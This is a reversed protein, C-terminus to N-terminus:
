AVYLLEAIRLITWFGACGGIAYAAGTGLRHPPLWARVIAFAVMSASMCVLQGAEIGVNFGLLAVTRHDAPLGVETLAGALGLGHLLGFGFALVITRRRDSQLDADPRLVERAAFMISLAILAETPAPALVLWGLASLSLTLSHALTFLSLLGILGAVSRVMFSLLVIFAIHDYGVLIHQIGLGFYTRLASWPDSPQRLQDAHEAGNAGPPREVIPKSETLRYVEDDHPVGNVAQPRVRVLVEEIRAAFGLIGITPLRGRCTLTWQSEDARAPKPSAVCGEPWVPHLRSPRGVKPQRLTVHWRGPAAEILEFYGPAFRHGEARPAIASVAVVVAAAWLGRVSCRKM